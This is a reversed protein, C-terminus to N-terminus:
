LAARKELGFYIRRAACLRRRRFNEPPPIKGPTSMRLSAASQFSPDIPPFRVSPQPDLTAALRPAYVKL